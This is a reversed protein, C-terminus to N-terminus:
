KLGGSKVVASSFQYSSGDPGQSSASSVRLLSAGLGMALVRGTPSVAVPRDRFTSMMEYSIATILTAGSAIKAVFFRVYGQTQRTVISYGSDQATGPLVSVM